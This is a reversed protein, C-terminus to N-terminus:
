KFDGLPGWSAGLLGLLPGPPVWVGGPPGWSPGLLPGPPGRSAWSAGLLSGPPEWSTGPPEWSARLPDVLPEPPAWLVSLLGLLVRGLERGDLGVRVWILGHAGLQSLLQSRLQSLLM